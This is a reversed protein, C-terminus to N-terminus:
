FPHHVLSIILIHTLGWVFQLLSSQFKAWLAGEKLNIRLFFPGYSSHLLQAQIHLSFYMPLLAHVTAALFVEGTGIVDGKLLSGSAFFVPQQFGGATSTRLSQRLRQASDVQRKLMGWGMVSCVTIYLSAIQAM